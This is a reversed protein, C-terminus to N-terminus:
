EVLFKTNCDPYRSCVYFKRGQNPGAVSERIRFPAGCNPCFNRQDKVPEQEVFPQQEEVPPQEEIQERQEIMRVGVDALFPSEPEEQIKPSEPKEIEELGLVRDFITKLEATSCSDRVRVHILPLGAAEFVNNVFDDREMRDVRKHSSDDLEIGFLIKMTLADCVIFDVRKRSIRNFASYYAKQDNIWFVASLSVQPCIMYQEGLVKQIVLYFSHEAPSLFRKTVKYPYSIETEESSSRRDSKKRRSKKEGTGFLFGLCGPNDSRAM